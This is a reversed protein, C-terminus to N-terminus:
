AEREDATEKLGLYYGLFTTTIGWIFFIAQPSFVILIVNTWPTYPILPIQTALHKMVSGALVSVLIALRWHSKLSFVVKYQVSQDLHHFVMEAAFGFVIPALLIMLLLFLHEFVHIFSLVTILFVFILLAKELQKNTVKKLSLKVKFM